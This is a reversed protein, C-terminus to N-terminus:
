DADISREKLYKEGSLLYVWRELCIFIILVLKCSLIEAIDPRWELNSAAGEAACVCEAVLLM